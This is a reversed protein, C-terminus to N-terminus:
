LSKAIREPVIGFGVYLLQRHLRNSQKKLYLNSIFLPKDMKCKAFLTTIAAKQRSESIYKVSIFQGQWHILNTSM